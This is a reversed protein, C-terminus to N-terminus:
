RFPPPSMAFLARSIEIYDKMYQPLSMDKLYSIAIKKQYNEPLKMTHIASAYRSEIIIDSTVITAGIGHAVLPVCLNMNDIELAIRPSIGVDQLIIEVTDRFKLGKNYLILPIDGYQKLVTMAEDTESPERLMGNEYFAKPTLLILDQTFLPQHVYCSKKNVQMACILDVQGADLMKYLEAQRGTVLRLEVSPYRKCYESWVMPIFIEALRNKSGIVIRGHSNDKIANLQQTLNKEMALIKTATGLFVEGAYTPVMPMTRKFLPMGLETEFKKLAHSLASQEMYLAQAAATVSGKEAITVIYKLHRTNM